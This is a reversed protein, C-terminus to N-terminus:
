GLIDFGVTQDLKHVLNHVHLQVRNYCSHSFFLPVLDKSIKGVCVHWGFCGCAGNFDLHFIKIVVAGGKCIIETGHTGGSISDNYTCLVLICERVSSWELKVDDWPASHTFPIHLM